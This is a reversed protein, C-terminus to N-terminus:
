LLFCGNKVVSLFRKGHSIKGITGIIYPVLMRDNSQIYIQYFIYFSSLSKFRHMIPFRVFVHFSNWIDTSYFCM